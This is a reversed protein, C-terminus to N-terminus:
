RPGYQYSLTSLKWHPRARTEKKKKGNGNFWETQKGRLSQTRGDVGVVVKVVDRQGLPQLLVLEDLEPPDGGIEKLSVVAPFLANLQALLVLEVLDAEIVSINQM